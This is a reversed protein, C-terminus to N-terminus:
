LVWKLEHLRKMEETPLMITTIALRSAAIMKLKQDDTMKEVGNSIPFNSPYTRGTAARYAKMLQQKEDLDIKWINYEDISDKM